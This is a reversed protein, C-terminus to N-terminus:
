LFLSYIACISKKNRKWCSSREVEAREKEYLYTNGKRTMKVDLGESTIVLV